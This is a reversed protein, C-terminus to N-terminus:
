EFTFTGFASPIHFDPQTVASRMWSIWTIDDESPSQIDRDGRFVGALIAKGRLNNVGCITKILSTPIAGEVTYHHDSVTTKVHVGEAHWEPFFNRHYKAKYDYVLGTPSIEFCYYPNLSTDRSFFIEIRDGYTVAVEEKKESTIIKDDEVRFFFYFFSDDYTARFVTKEVPDSKWPSVFHNISDSKQWAPDNPKGDVNIVNKGIYRVSYNQGACTTILAIVAAVSLCANKIMPM